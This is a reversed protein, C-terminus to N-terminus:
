RAATTLKVLAAADAALRQVERRAREMAEPM